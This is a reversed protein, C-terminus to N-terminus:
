IRGSNRVNERRVPRPGISSRRVSLLCYKREVRCLLWTRLATGGTSSTTWSLMAMGARWRTSVFRSYNREHLYTAPHNRGSFAKWRTPCRHRCFRYTWAATSYRRDGPSSSDVVRHFLRRVVFRTTARFFVPPAQPNAFKACTSKQAICMARWKALPTQRPAFEIERIVAAVLISRNGNCVFGRVSFNIVFRSRFSSTLDLIRAVTARSFWLKIVGCRKAPLERPTNKLPPTFSKQSSM